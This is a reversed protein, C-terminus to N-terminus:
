DGVTEDDGDYGDCGLGAPWFLRLDPDWSIWAGRVYAGRRTLADLQGDGDLDLIRLADDEEETDALEVLEWARGQQVAAFLKSEYKEQSECTDETHVSVLVFGRKGHVASRITGEQTGDSWSHLSRLARDPLQTAVVDAVVGAQDGRVFAGRCPAVLPAVVFLDNSTRAEEIVDAEDDGHEIFGAYRLRPTGLTGTCLADLDDDLVTVAVGELARLEDGDPLGAEVVASGIGGGAADRVSTAVEPDVWAIVRGTFGVMVRGDLVRALRMASPSSAQDLGYVVGATAVAAPNASPREVTSQLLEEYVIRVGADAGTVVITKTGVDKYSGQQWTQTFFLQRKDGLAYAVLDTAQVQMPRKFMAGRDRMWGTRDFRKVTRGSRRVGHFRDGYFAQYGDFRGENQTALWAALFGDLDARAPGDLRSPLKLAPVGADPAGGADARAADAPSAAVVPQPTPKGQDRCGVAVVALIWIARM